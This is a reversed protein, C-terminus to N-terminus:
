APRIPRGKRAEEITQLFVTGEKEANLDLAARSSAEKLATVQEATLESLANALDSPTWGSVVVGNSYREVVEVMMPSRGIVLGLRGQVGEFLKNPLAFELNRSTPRFFMVELDYQNVAASIETMPVPPVFRVRDELDSAYNALDAIIAQNGTLMFTMSFRKDLLRMADVIEWLGRAKSVMGHYILKIDRPDVPSPALNAYPPSSRVVVPKAIGFDHAYLDSIRRAVTSRTMFVPDGILTLIWAFYASTLTRWLSGRRPRPERYEHIDLHLHTRSAAQTLVRPDKALPLFDFDDFIILDYEGTSIRNKAETPIRNGSLLRFKTRRPLVLYVIVAGIRSRVWRAQPLLAFHDRVVEAPRKGLGITDVTWGAGTLWDIQRRVRPDSHAESLVAVLAVNSESM